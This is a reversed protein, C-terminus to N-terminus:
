TFQVSQGIEEKMAEKVIAGCMKAYPNTTVSMHKAGEDGYMGGQYFDRSAMDELAEKGNRQLSDPLSALNGSKTMMHLLYARHTYASSLLQSQFISVPTSPSPPSVLSIAKSLDALICEVITRDAPGSYDRQPLLLRRAEARNTYAPAYDPNAAILTDLSEIAHHVAEPAPDQLNLPKIINAEQDRLAQLQQSPIGPLSTRTDDIIAHPQEISSEPDFLAGLIKQDNSSLVAGHM